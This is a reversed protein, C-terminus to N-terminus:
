PRAPVTGPVSSVASFVNRYEHSQSNGTYRKARCGGEKGRGWGVGPDNEKLVSEVM